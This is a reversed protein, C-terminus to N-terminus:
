AQCAEGARWYKWDLAAALCQIEPSKITHFYSYGRILHGILGLRARFPLLKNPHILPDEFSPIDGRQFQLAVSCRPEQARSSTRGGWHLLLQNWVLLSGAPAPLARVNQLAQGALSYDGDDPPPPSRLDSDWHAPIVYMCGNLPTADTLPLWVTVSHPINEPGFTTAPRDRHPRWGATENSPKVYWAWCDPLVKYDAGLVKQLFPHLSRFLNWFEDYIFAFAHPINRKDLLAVSERLVQLHGVPLVGPENVYGESLLTDLWGDINTLDAVPVSDSAGISLNPCLERWYELSTAEDSSLHNGSNRKHEM